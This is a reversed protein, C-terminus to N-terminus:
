EGDKETLAYCAAEEGNRVYLRGRAVVPHNWTKGQIAQFRALEKHGEPDAKVLAVEGKESLILLIGQDALSLIQGGWSNRVRWRQGGDELNVCTLYNGDFGYACGEHVVLDDFFPKLKASTWKEETAWAEGDHTVHVRRTGDTSALLVDSDDLVAPQLVRGMGPMPWAHQWLVTGHAPDLATLGVETAMLLQEVDALRAPHPSSYGLLGEGASWALAGSSADYALVSKKDPGGAFVTVIGHVVLPSAAFGWQPTKAGSDAGIDHSWVVEGTAADLCNLRGAGGLAYIRGDHFTPTARPGPGAVAEDFRAADKHVWVEDGTDADYCVVTEDNGRQEQTYLRNGVVAFSGWGPGVRHRWVEKPPNKSWDVDLRVGTRRGDRGPGRFGPWDAPQLTPAASAAAKHRGGAALEALLADEATPSWRWHFSAQMNGDVGDFRFLPFAAWTLVLAAILGAFRVPWNLFPTGLMWLVWATAVWPLAFMLFAMGQLATLLWSVVGALACAGLGLFRDRWRLRSLALWWVVILLAAALPALFQAMFVAFAPLELWRPTEIVIWMLAVVVAAPWVRPRPSAVPGTQPVAASPAPGASPPLNPQVQSIVDSM